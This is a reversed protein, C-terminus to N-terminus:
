VFHLSILPLFFKLINALDDRLLLYYAQLYQLNQTSMTDKQLLIGLVLKKM